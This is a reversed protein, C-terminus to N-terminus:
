VIEIEGSFSLRVVTKGATDLVILEWRHRSRWFDLDLEAIMEMSAVRAVEYVADASRV